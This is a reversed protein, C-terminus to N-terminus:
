VERDEIQRKLLNRFIEDHSYQKELIEEMATIYIVKPNKAEIHQKEELLFKYEDNSYLRM